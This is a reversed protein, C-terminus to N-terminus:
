NVESVFYAMWDDSNSTLTGAGSFRLWLPQFTYTGAALADFIGGGSITIHENATNILMRAMTPQYANDSNFIDMGFQVSTNIASSFCSSTFDIRVRSGNIRKTFTTATGVGFNSYSAGATTDAGPTDSFYVPGTITAFDSPSVTGLVLWSQDQRILAVVDGATFNAWNAVGPSVVQGGQVNVILPSVQDVTGIRVNNDPPNQSTIALPLPQFPDTM